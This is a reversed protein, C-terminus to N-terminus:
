SEWEGRLYGNADFTSIWLRRQWKENESLQESDTTVNKM